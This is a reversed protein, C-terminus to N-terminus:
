REETEWYMKTKTTVEGDALTFTMEPTPEDNLGGEMPFTSEASLVMSSEGFRFTFRKGTARRTDRLEIELAGGPKWRGNAGYPVGHIDSTVFHGNLGLQIEFSGNDQRCLLAADEGWFRFSLSVLRGGVPQFSGAGGILDEMGPLPKEPLYVASNLSKEAWPNRMGLVPNLELRKLRNKLSHLAQPDEPLPGEAMAPLLKEWVATLVAQLQMSASQIVVVADQGTCVVGYQGFAGDGRFVGEPECRWFQYGYGQQWDPDGDWGAGRNEIQKRTAEEFWSEELLQRGEWKGRNAVFQVFRAMDEITMSCGAGGMETGDPLPQCPIDTLGLPEMLRPRLFETLTQGTKRTLIASLLNTGATNYLFHTGPEYVFPHALFSKIWDPDGLGLNPIETEHGCGMMLLHRIEAKKLNESPNEPLKDPFIDVLKEKLSLIGEQRAFGIATSTLSKSFSFMIHQVQPRYPKWSGEAYVKGHRLLMFSHMETGCRYLEDLLATVAGSPVGVSEPTVRQFEM